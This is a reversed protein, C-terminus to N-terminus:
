EVEFGIKSMKTVFEKRFSELKTNDVLVILEKRARSCGVYFLKYAWLTGKTSTTKFCKRANTSNPSSLFKEYAEKECFKFYINDGYKKIIETAAKIYYEEHSKFVNAPTVFSLDLSKCTSKYGYYYLQFDTLNINNRAFLEFFNYMHTIPQSNSDEAIFCVNDHGEGKVGHQTSVYPNDM